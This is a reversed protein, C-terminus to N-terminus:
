SGEASVGAAIVGLVGVTIIVALILAIHAILAPLTKRM